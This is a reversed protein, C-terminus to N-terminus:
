GLYVVFQQAQVFASEQTYPAKIFMDESNASLFDMKVMGNPDLIDSGWVLNNAQGAIIANEPLPVFEINVGSYSYKGGATMFLDRYTASINYTNILQLHSHPVYMNVEGAYSPQLLKPLIAAYVKAYETAINSATITTGAVKIRRKTVSYTLILKTLIGNIFDTPAAAVYTKEAAGVENQNTGATLAAVTVKTAATAANWFRSEMLESEAAGYRAIVMRQYEDTVKPFATNSGNPKGLRSLLVTNPTFEDYIMFQYPKLIQDAFALTGAADGSVPSAKYAQTSRTVNTETLVMQTNVNDLLRVLGKEVTKNMYLIENFIEEYFTGTFQAPSYTLSYIGQPLKPAAISLAMSGIVFLGVIANPDSGTFSATFSGLVVAFLLTALISLISKKM